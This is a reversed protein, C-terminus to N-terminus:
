STSRLMSVIMDFFALGTIALMVGAAIQWVREVTPSHSPTEAIFGVIFGGALGGAHAAIDTGPILSLVL